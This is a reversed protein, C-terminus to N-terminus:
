PFRPGFLAEFAAALEEFTVKNYRAITEQSNDDHGAYTAAVRVDAVTRIDDLTTHRIWHVGLDLRETWTTHQDLRDYITEYRRRSMPTGRRTRFVHDSAATAGRSTAFRRLRALGDADYPLERTKGFKETLTIAGRREDLDGLRLNLGGERRAATKRHFEFLLTDLEPDNGTTCWIVAIEELEEPLLPREPAPPRKPVEVDMAVNDRVHRAKRAYRFFFRYARVANEGAGRGHADHEYSRLPRGTREARELKRRAAQAMTEDRLACLHNATVETVPLDGLREVLRRFHCGYSPLSKASCAARVEPELQAVTPVTAANAMQSGISALDAASLGLAEAMKLLAEAPDVASV